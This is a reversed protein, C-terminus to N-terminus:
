PRRLIILDEPHAFGLTRRASEELLDPDIREGDLLDVQRELRMRDDEVAAFEMSLAARRERLDMLAFWGHNGALAHYSFYVILFLGALTLCANM